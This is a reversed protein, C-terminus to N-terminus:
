DALGKVSNIDYCGSVGKFFAVASHGSLVHAPYWVKVTIPVEAFDKLLLVATGIPYKKNFDDCAKELKEIDPKKM